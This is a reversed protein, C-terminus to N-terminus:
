PTVVGIEAAATALAPEPKPKGRLKRRAPQEVGLYVLISAMIPLVFGVIRGLVGQHRVGNPGFYAFLVFPHLLYLSYSADGLLILARSEMFAAWGPRLAIGYIVATFAPALLGNHLLPYSIQPSCMVVGLFALTGVGVLPTAWKRAISNRLFLFGCCAGMIFEPLRVLPNFRLVNLWFLENSEDNVSVAGDPMFIIYGISLSFTVGLCVLAAIKLNRSRWGALRVLLLPFLLYFFAEVSLSWAPSNWALAAQPVWSQLLTLVLTSSLLWHAKFWPLYACMLIFTPATFLLSFLYAPYIRAFRARWFHWASFDRDAYTYVLIFGSLIFFFSVGVYGIAALAHYFGTGAFINMAYLHFLVVHLAAFFRLSTLAPLHPRTADAKM